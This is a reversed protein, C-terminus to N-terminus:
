IDDPLESLASSEDSAEGEELEEERVKKQKAKVPEEALEGMEIDDDALTKAHGRGGSSLVSASSQARLLAQMAPSGHRSLILSKARNFAPNNDLASLPVDDSSLQDDDEEGEEKEEKEEGEEKDLFTDIVLSTSAPTPSPPLGVDTESQTPDLVPSTERPTDTEKGMLRLSGLDGIISMLASKQSHILRTQTDHEARIAAMDNELLLISRLPSHILVFFDTISYTRM